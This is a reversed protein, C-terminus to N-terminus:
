FLTNKFLFDGEKEKVNYDKVLTFGLNTLYLKTEDKSMGDEYYVAGYELHIYKIKNLINKCGELVEKEAGQVDIWLLDIIELKEEKDWESLSISQVEIETSNLLDERTAKKLSSSGSNNLHLNKYDDSGIFKYKGPLNKFKMNSQYFKMVSNKNSVAYPFLKIKDINRFVKESIKINRPDPEFCYINADPFFHHFRVSDEGYHSGVELINTTYGIIRSLEIFKKQYRELKMNKLIYKIDM